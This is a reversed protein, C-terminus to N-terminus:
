GAAARRHLEPAPDPESRDLEVRLLEALLHHYRYWRLLLDLPILFMNERQIAELVSATDTDNLVADCHANLKRPVVNAAFIAGSRPSATLVEAMLYDAIYRHTEMSRKSSRTPTPDGASRCRPWICGQRGGRPAGICCSSTMTQLAWTCSPTSYTGRRKPNFDCITAACRTSNEAHRFRALPLAPDARTALVVHLNAPMRTLVFEMQEHVAPNTMLHDDYLIM